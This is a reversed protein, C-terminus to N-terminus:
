AEGELVVVLLKHAADLVRLVSGGHRAGDKDCNKNVDHTNRGGCALGDWWPM